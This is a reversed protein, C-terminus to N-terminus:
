PNSSTRIGYTVSLSFFICTGDPKTLSSSM